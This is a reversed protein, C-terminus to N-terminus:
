ETQHGLLKNYWKAQNSKLQEHTGQHRIQGQDLVVIHDMFRAMEVEHTVLILTMGHARIFHLLKPLIVERKKVADMQGFAEDLIVISARKRLLVRALAVSQIMGGSLLSGRVGTERALM